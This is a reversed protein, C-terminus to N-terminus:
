IYKTRIEYLTIQISYKIGYEMDYHDYYEYWTDNDYPTLIINTIRGSEYEYDMDYYYIDYRIRITMDNYKFQISNWNFQIDYNM